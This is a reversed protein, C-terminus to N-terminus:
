PSPRKSTATSLPLKVRLKSRGSSTATPKSLFGFFSLSFIVSSVASFISCSAPTNHTILGYAIFDHSDHDLAIDVTEIEDGDVVHEVVFLPNSIIDKIENPVSLGQNEARQVFSSFSNIGVKQKEFMKISYGLSHNNYTTIGVSKAWMILQRQIYPLEMGSSRCFKRDLLKKLLEQKYNLM